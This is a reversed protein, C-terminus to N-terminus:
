LRMWECHSSSDVSFCCLFNWTVCHKDKRSQQLEKKKNKEIESLYLKFIDLESLVGWYLFSTLNIIITQQYLLFMTSCYMILFLSVVYFTLESLYRGLWKLNLYNQFHNVRSFSWHWNNWIFTVKFIALESLVGWYLFSSLKIRITQKWPFISSCVLHLLFM